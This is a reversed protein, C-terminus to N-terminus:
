CHYYRMTLIADFGVEVACWTRTREIYTAYSDIKKVTVAAASSLLGSPYAHASSLLDGGTSITCFSQRDTALVSPRASPPWRVREGIRDMASRNVPLPYPLSRGRYPSPISATSLTIRYRIDFPARTPLRSFRFQEGDFGVLRATRIGGQPRCTPAAASTTGNQHSDVPSTVSTRLAAGGIFDNRYVIAVSIARLAVGDNRHLRRWAANLTAINATYIPKCRTYLITSNRM